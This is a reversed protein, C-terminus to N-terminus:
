LQHLAGRRAAGGFQQFEVRIVVVPRYDCARTVVAAVAEDDRALQEHTAVAYVDIARPVAGTAGVVVGVGDTEFPQQRGGVEGGEGRGRAAHQYVGEKADAGVARQVLGVGAEDGGDVAGGDGDDGNVQGGAQLGVTRVGRLVGGDVGRVGKAEAAGFRRQEPCFVFFVDARQVQQWYVKVAVGDGVGGARAPQIGGPQAGLVAWAAAEGVFAVGSSQQEDRTATAHGARRHHRCFRRQAAAAAQEGRVQGGGAAVGKM